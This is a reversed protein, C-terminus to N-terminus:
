SPSGLAGDAGPQLGPPSRPSHRAPRTGPEFGPGPVVLGRELPLFVRFGGTVTNVQTGRHHLGALGQRPASLMEAKRAIAFVASSGPNLDRGPCWM